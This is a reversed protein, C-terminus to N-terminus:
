AAKEVLIFCQVPKGSQIFERRVDGPLNEWGVERAIKGVLVNQEPGRLAVVVTRECADPKTRSVEVDIRL